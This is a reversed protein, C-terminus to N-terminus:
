GMLISIQQTSKKKNLDTSFLMASKVIKVHECVPLQFTWDSMTGIACSAQRYRNVSLGLKYAGANFISPAYMNNGMDTGYTRVDINRTGAKVEVDNLTRVHFNVCVKGGSPM